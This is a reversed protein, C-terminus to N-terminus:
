MQFPDCFNYNVEGVGDGIKLVLFAFGLFLLHSKSTVCCLRHCYSVHFLIFIFFLSFKEFKEKAGKNKIMISWKAIKEGLPIM